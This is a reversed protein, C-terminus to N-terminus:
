QRRYLSYYHGEVHAYSAYKAAKGEYNPRLVRVMSAGNMTTQQREEETRRAEKLDAGGDLLCFRGQGTTLLWGGSIGEDHQISGM